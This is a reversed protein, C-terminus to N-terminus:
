LKKWCIKRFLRVSSLTVESNANWSGNFSCLVSFPPFSKCVSLCFSLSVFMVVLLYGRVCLCAFFITQTFLFFKNPINAISKKNASKKHKLYKFLYKFIVLEYFWNLLVCLFLMFPIFFNFLLYTHLQTLCIYFSL